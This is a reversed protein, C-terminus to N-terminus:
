PLLVDIERWRVMVTVDGGPITSGVQDVDVTLYEGAEIINVSPVADASVNTSVAITPRAAQSAFVTTGSKHVDVIISAGTPAVHVAARIGLIASRTSFYQRLRGSEVFAQGPLSFTTITGGTAISGVPTGDTFSTPAPKRFERILTRLGQALAAENSLVPAGFHVDYKPAADSPGMSVTIAAVRLERKVDKPALNLTVIDGPQYDTWPLHVPDALTIKRAATNLDTRNVFREALEDLETSDVGQRDQYFKELRGWVDDLTTSAFEGWHGDAGEAKVYTAGPPRRVVTM